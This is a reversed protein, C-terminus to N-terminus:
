PGALPAVDPNLGLGISVAIGLAILVIAAAAVWHSGGSKEDHFSATTM